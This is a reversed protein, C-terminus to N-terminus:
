EGSNMIALLLVSFKLDLIQSLSRVILTKGLGPVGEILAHGGCLLCTFIHKILTDHGVIIKSLENLILEFNSQIADVKQNLDSSM